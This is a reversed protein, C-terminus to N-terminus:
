FFYTPYGNPRQAVRYELRRSAAVSIIEQMRAEKSQMNVMDIGLEGLERDMVPSISSGKFRTLPGCLPTHIGNLYGRVVHKMGELIQTEAVEFEAKPQKLLAAFGKSEPNRWSTIFTNARHVGETQLVFMRSYENHGRVANWDITRVSGFVRINEVMAKKEAMYTNWLTVPEDHNGYQAGALDLAFNRNRNTEVKLVRHHYDTKDKEGYKGYFSAQPRNRVKM